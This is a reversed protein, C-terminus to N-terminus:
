PRSRRRGTSGPTADARVLIVNTLRLSFNRYENPAVAFPIGVMLGNTISANTPAYVLLRRVGSAPGSSALVHNVLLPGSVPVGDSVGTADFLVDAQLAVVNRVENSRYSLSVPVEVTRGPFGRVVGVRLSVAPASVALAVLVLSLISKM